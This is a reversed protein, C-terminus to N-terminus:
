ANSNSGIKLIDHIKAYFDSLKILIEKYDNGTITKQLVANYLQMEINHLNPVICMQYLNENYVKQQKNM